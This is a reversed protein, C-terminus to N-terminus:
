IANCRGKLFFFIAGVLFLICIIFLLYKELICYFGFIM